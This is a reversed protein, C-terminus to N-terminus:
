ISNMIEVIYELEEKNLGPHVPLSLIQSCIKEAVPLSDKYNLDIYVKQKHIPKPYFLGTGIGKENLKKMVEDRNKGIVKITFRSFSHRCNEKVEPVKLWKLDKLNRTLFDANEKRRKLFNDIKKLQEILIVASIDNMKYNFGLIEHNNKERQGHIRIMRSMEMIKDDNTVVAGGGASSISKTPDFSFASSMTLSGTKRGKYESGHSQACDEIVLLNHKEAIEKIEDMYCPHGYLSVPLIARTKKTIKEKILSPNITFTNEDIDAFVPKANLHLVSNATAIFSLPTTIVEDGEKIGNARLVTNLATTGSSTCICHKVGIYKAFEKEFEEVKNGLLLNGSRIVELVKEEEEKGLIPKNFSINM